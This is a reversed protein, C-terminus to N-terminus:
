PVQVRYVWFSEDGVLAPGSSYLLTRTSGPPSDPLVQIGILLVPSKRERAVEVSRKVLEAPSFGRRRGHFVVTQNFEDTEIAVYPRLLYGTVADVEFDPGAVIPLDQLGAHVIFAATQRGGSFVKQTDVVVAGLTAELQFVFVASLFVTSILHRRRPLATRALWCAAIFLVLFHGWHRTGGDYRVTMFVDMAVAGALYVLMLRWSPYLSLLALVILAAGIFENIWLTRAESYTQSMCFLDSWHRWPLFGGLPRFLLHPVARMDLAAFNFGPSFPNPDPPEATFICFLIAASVSAVTVLLWPSATFEIRAPPSARNMSLSPTVHDLVVFGLLFISMILGFASTLSLLGLAIALGLYRVRLRHYLTCFLSVCVWGLVYNRSMVTHEYALYYSSLALVKLYRPFPAFRVFLVASAMAATVTAAQIGWAAQVFWTWVRLYWFWLPPHGEYARDGTVLDWFGNAVRALTWAHIEDRWMEHHVHMWVLYALYVLCLVVTFRWSTERDKGIARLLRKVRV